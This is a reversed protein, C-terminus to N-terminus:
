DKENAVKKEINKKKYTLFINQMYEDWDKENGNWSYDFHNFDSINHLVKMHVLTLIKELLKSDVHEPLTCKKMAEEMETEKSTIHDMVDEYTSKGLRVNLIFDHDYMNTRDVIFGKGEAVEIGMHLLRICHGINKRDFEKEKALNFREENRHKEFDKFEKYEKCDHQYDDQSYFVQILLPENKPISSYRLQNSNEKLNVIGGYGLCKGFRDYWEEFKDKEIVIHGCYEYFIDEFTPVSNQKSLSFAEFFKIINECREKSEISAKRDLAEYVYKCEKLAKYLENFNNIHLTNKLHAGWDYYLGFADRAHPLNVIGCWHQDLRYEELFDKIPKTGYNGDFTYVYNLIKPAEKWPRVIKKKLSRAKIIQSKAYGIFPGFCDKTLFENRYKKIWTIIPHEYKVCKDPIFLAELVTPNSKLLLRIFKSFSWYVTDGKEDSVQDQVDLQMGLFEIPNDMYIGGIDIDSTGDPKQLGYAHSGRIYEYLLLGRDKMEAITM